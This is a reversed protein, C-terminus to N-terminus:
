GWSQFKPECLIASITGYGCGRSDNAYRISLVSCCEDWTWNAVGDSAGHTGYCTSNTGDCAAYAGNSLLATGSTCQCTAGDRAGNHSSFPNSKSTSQSASKSGPEDAPDPAANSSTACCKSHQSTPAAKRSWIIFNIGARQIYLTYITAVNAWQPVPLRPVGLGYISLVKRQFAPEPLM